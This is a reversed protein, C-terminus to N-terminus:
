FSSVTELLFINTKAKKWFINLVRGFLYYNFTISNKTCAKVANFMFGLLARPKHGIVKENPCQGKGFQRIFSLVM